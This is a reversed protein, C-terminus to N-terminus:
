IRPGPLRRPDTSEGARRPPRGRQRAPWRSTRALFEDFAQIFDAPVEFCPLAGTPFVSIRWNARGEVVGKSGYDAFDGRVCHSMWVPQPVSRYVRHIDAGFLGGSIFHLPAFAGLPLSRTPTAQM